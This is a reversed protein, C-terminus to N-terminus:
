PQPSPVSATPLPPPQQSGSGIRVPASGAAPRRRGQGGALPQGTRAAPAHRAYLCAATSRGKPAAAARLLRPPPRVRGAALRAGHPPPAVKTVLWRWARGLTSTNETQAENGGHSSSVTGDVSASAFM